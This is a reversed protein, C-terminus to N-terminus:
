AWTELRILAWMRLGVNLIMRDDVKVIRNLTTNLNKNLSSCLIVIFGMNSNM